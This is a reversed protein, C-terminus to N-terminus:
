PCIDGNLVFDLNVFSIDKLLRLDDTTLTNKNNFMGAFTGLDASVMSAGVQSAMTKSAKDHELVALRKGALKEVSNIGKNKRTAATLNDIQTQAAAPQQAGRPSCLLQQGRELSM